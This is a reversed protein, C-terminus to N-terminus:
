EKFRYGVGRVTQVYKGGSGLKKQIRFRDVLIFDQPLDMLNDPLQPVVVAPGSVDPASDDKAEPLILDDLAKRAIAASTHREEPDFECFKQLWEDIGKPLDPKHESPKMPFKGDAEMM